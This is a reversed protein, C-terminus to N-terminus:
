PAKPAAPDRMRAAELAQLLPEIRPRRRHNKDAHAWLITKDPAILFMAPIAIKHHSQGSWRPIDHGFGQLREVGQSTLNNTVRFADHIKADADSLLPFPVEYTKRMLETPDIADVSIFVPNM